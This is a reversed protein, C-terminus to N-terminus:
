YLRLVGHPDDRASGHEVRLGAGGDRVDVHLSALAAHAGVGSAFEANDDSGACRKAETPKAILTAFHDYLRENTTCDSTGRM